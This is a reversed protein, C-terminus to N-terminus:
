GVTWFGTGWRAAKEPTIGLERAIEKDQWGDAARLVIRAREVQRAPLSRARSQQELTQRQAPDLTIPQAVRMGDDKM